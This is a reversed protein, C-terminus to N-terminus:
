SLKTVKLKQLNADCKELISHSRPVHFKTLINVKSYVKNLGFKINRTNTFFTISVKFFEFNPCNHLKSNKCRLMAKKEFVTRGLFM